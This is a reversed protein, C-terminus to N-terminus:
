SAVGVLRAANRSLGLMVTTDRGGQEENDDSEEDTSAARRGRQPQPIKDLDSKSWFTANKASMTPKYKGNSRSRLMKLADTTYPIGWKDSLYKAAEAAELLEEQDAM